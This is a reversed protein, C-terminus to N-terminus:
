SCAYFRDKIKLRHALVGAEGFCWQMSCVRYLNGDRFSAPDPMMLHERKGPAQGLPKQGPALHDRKPKCAASILGPNALARPRLPRQFLAGGAPAHPAALIDPACSKDLIHYIFNGCSAATRLLILVRSKISAFM